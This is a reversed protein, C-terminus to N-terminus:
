QEKQQRGDTLTMLYVVFFYQLLSFRVSVHFAAAAPMAYQQLAIYISHHNMM